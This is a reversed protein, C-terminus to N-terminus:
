KLSAQYRKVLTSWNIAEDFRHWLGDSEKIFGISAAWIVVFPRIVLDSM